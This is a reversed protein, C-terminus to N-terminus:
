GCKNCGYVELLEEYFEYYVDDVVTEICSIKNCVIVKCKPCEIYKIDQCKYCRERWRRDSELIDNIYLHLEVPLRDLYNTVEM